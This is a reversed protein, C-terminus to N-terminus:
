YTNYIKRFRLESEGAKNTEMDINKYFTWQLIIVCDVIFFNVIGIVLINYRCLDKRNIQTFELRLIYYAYLVNTM